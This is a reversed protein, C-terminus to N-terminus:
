FLRLQPNRQRSKPRPTRVAKLFVPDPFDALTWPYRHRGGLWYEAIEELAILFGHGHEDDVSRFWQRVIYHAFEHLLVSEVTLCGGDTARKAIKEPYIRITQAVIQKHRVGDLLYEAATTTHTGLVTEPIEADQSDSCWNLPPEPVHFRRALIALMAKAGSRSRVKM